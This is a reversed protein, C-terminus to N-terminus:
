CYGYWDFMLMGKNVFSNALKFKYSSSLAASDHFMLQGLHVNCCKQFIIMQGHSFTPIELM